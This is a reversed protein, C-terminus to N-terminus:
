VAEQPFNLRAFEGHLEKAAADYALAASEDDAFLGLYYKKGDFQIASMWKGSPLRTLGKFRHKGTGANNRNNQAITCVRLNSRRNDLTDNNIHDVVMGDPADMVFRHLRIVRATTARIYYRGKERKACWKFALVRPADIEDILAVMAINTLPIEM